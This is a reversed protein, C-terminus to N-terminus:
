EGNGPWRRAQKGRLACKREILDDDQVHILSLTFNGHDGGICLIATQPSDHRLAYKLDNEELAAIAPHQYDSIPVTLAHSHTRKPM